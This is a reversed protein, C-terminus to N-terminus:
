ESKGEEEYEKRWNEHLRELFSIVEEKSSMDTDFDRGVHKYWSIYRHARSDVVVYEDEYKFSIYCNPTDEKVIDLFKDINGFIRDIEKYLDDRSIVEGGTDVGITVEGSPTNIGSYLPLMQFLFNKFDPESLVIVHSIDQKKYVDFLCKSFYDDFNKNLQAQTKMFITNFSLNYNKFAKEREAATEYVKPPLNYIKVFEPM